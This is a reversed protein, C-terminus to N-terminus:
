LAQEYLVVSRWVLKLFVAPRVYWIKTHSCNILQQRLGLRM